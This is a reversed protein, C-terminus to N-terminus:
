WLEARLFLFVAKPVDQHTPALNAPIWPTLLGQTSAIQGFPCTTLTAPFRLFCAHFQYSPKCPLSHSCNTGHILLLMVRPLPVLTPSTASMLPSRDPGLCPPAKPYPLGWATLSTPSVPHQLHSERCGSWPQVSPDCPLRLFIIDPAGSGGPVRM